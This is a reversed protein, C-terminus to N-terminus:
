EDDFRRTLDDIQRLAEPSMMQHHEADVPVQRITGRCFARWAEPTVGTRDLGPTERTAVFVTIDGDFPDLRVTPVLRSNNAMVAALRNLQQMSFTGLIHSQARALESVSEANLECDPPIALRTGLAIERWIEDISQADTTQAVPPYSDFLLVREVQEGESRLRTAIMHAIIGGFSWGLLRYPGHPRVLRIQELSEAVVEDLTEPLSRDDAFGRAQIGYIPQDEATVHLLNTYPWCLGTGPHLCFL